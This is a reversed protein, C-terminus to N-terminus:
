PQLDVRDAYDVLIRAFVRAEGTTMQLQVDGATVQVTPVDKFGGRDEMSSQSIHFSVSQQGPRMVRGDVKNTITNFHIGNGGALHELEQPDLRKDHGECWMPCHTSRKAM